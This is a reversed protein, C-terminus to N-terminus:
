LNGGLYVVSNEHPITYENKSLKYSFKPMVIRYM